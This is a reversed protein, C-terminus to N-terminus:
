AGFPSHLDVLPLPNDGHPVSNYVFPYSIDGLPVYNDGLPLAKDGFTSHIDGIKSVNDGLPALKCLQPYPKARSNNANAIM